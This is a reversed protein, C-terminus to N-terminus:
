FLDGQGEVKVDVLGKERALWDPLEADVLVPMLTPVPHGAELVLQSKPAFVGAGVSGRSVLWADDEERHLYLRVPIMM